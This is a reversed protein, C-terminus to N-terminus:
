LTWPLRSCTLQYFINDLASLLKFVSM